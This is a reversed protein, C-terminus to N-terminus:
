QSNNNAEQLYVFYDKRLREKLELASENDKLISYFTSGSGTMLSFLANSSTLVEKLKNIAPYSNLVPEEFDNKLIDTLKAPADLHEQRFDKLNFKPTGPTVNDYAWKTSINVRPNVILLPFNIKLKREELIEGRASAYCPKPKLFFPVDSGIRLALKRLTLENIHLGLFSNLTTLVTAADSSGGGLGAGIPINKELHIHVKIEKKVEEELLQKTKTIINDSSDNLEKTNTTLRFYKDKRFTLIDCLDVPYFITEINHYGDDRKSIVHLGLNIKAPAKVKIEKM